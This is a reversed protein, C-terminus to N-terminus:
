LFSYQAWRTAIVMTIVSRITAQTSERSVFLAIVPAGFGFPIRFAMGIIMALTAALVMRGVVQVRQPYPALEERLFEWVWNSPNSTIVPTAATTAM